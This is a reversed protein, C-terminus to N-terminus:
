KDFIMPQMQKGELALRVAEPIKDFDSVISSPKKEYDDQVLPVFYYNKYNCLAGINKACGTLADNTSVGIVVPRGNRLHSKVGMTVPTDTISNALKALTNGTCPAVVILDFMNKPGIPEADQLTAIIKKNCIDEIRDIFSKADGFRTNLNYANFSMIPTVEYGIEILKKIQEIAQEFTCFSGCLAYGIRKEKM